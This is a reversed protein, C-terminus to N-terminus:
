RTPEGKDDGDPVFDMLEGINSDMVRAIKMMVSMTVERNRRLKTFTAPSLGTRKRLESKSLEREACLIWLKKYSIQM